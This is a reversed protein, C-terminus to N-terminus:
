VEAPPSTTSASGGSGPKPMGKVITTSDPAGPLPEFRDALGAYHGYGPETSEHSHGRNASQEELRYHGADSYVEKFGQEDIKHYIAFQQLRWYEADEVHGMDAVKPAPKTFEINNNVIPAETPGVDNQAKWEKYYEPPETKKAHGKENFKFFQPEGNAMRQVELPQGTTSCILRGDARQAAKLNVDNKTKAPFNPRSSGYVWDDLKGQIHEPKVDLQSGTSGRGAANIEATNVNRATGTRERWSFKEPNNLHDREVYRMTGSRLESAVGRAPRQAAAGAREIDKALRQSIM